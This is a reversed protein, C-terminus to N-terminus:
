KWRNIFGLRESEPDSGSAISYEECASYVKLLDEYLSHALPDPTYTKEDYEIFDNFVDSWECGQHAQYARLAAGLGAGGTTKLKKVKAGFINAIIQLISSNQSAGGTISISDPKSMWSSHLRMSLFQAELVARCNAEAESENLGFRYVQAHKSAPTIEEDFYPLMIKGNNGCKTQALAKEYDEWSLQYHERVKERALSGNVFCILSMYGTSPSAFVHGEGEESVILKDSIGFYTDSTGLSIAAESANSLGLGILSCPNDGSFAIVDTESNFGFRDVWYPAIKGVVHSPSVCKPLKSILEPATANLLEGNWDHKELDMLNMGSGDAHDIGANKGILLSAMFSSVLHITETNAYGENETKYFKRIQPGTFRMTAASGTLQAISPVASEIEECETSTSTDMWIPSHERSFVGKLQAVLGESTNLNALTDLWSNNLYVSGHQQGSGSIAKIEALDVGDKKMQEVIYELSETWMLPPSLVEGNAGKLIGNETNYHPFYEAFPFSKEWVTEGKEVDLLVASASQTSFDLGLYKSM